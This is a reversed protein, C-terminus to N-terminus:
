REQAAYRLELMMRRKTRAVGIRFNAASALTM